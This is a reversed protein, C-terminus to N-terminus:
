HWGLARISDFFSCNKMPRHMWMTPHPLLTRRTLDIQAGHFPPFDIPPSLKTSFLKPIQPIISFLIKFYFGNWNDLAM